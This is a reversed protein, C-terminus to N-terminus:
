ALDFGDALQTSLSHNLRLDQAHTLKGHQHQKQVATHDGPGRGATLVEHSMWQKSEEAKWSTLRDQRRRWARNRDTM